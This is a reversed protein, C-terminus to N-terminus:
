TATPPSHLERLCNTQDSEGNGSDPSCPLDGVEASRIAGEDYALTSKQEHLTSDADKDGAHSVPSFIYGFSTNALM